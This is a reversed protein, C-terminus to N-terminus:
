GIEGRSLSSRIEELLISLLKMKYICLVFPLCPSPAYLQITDFCPYVDSRPVVKLFLRSMTQRVYFLVCSHLHCRNDFHILYTTAKDFRM